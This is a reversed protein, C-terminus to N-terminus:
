GLDGFELCAFSSIDHNEFYHMNSALSLLSRNHHADNAFADINFIIRNDLIANEIFTLAFGLDLKYSNEYLQWNYIIDSGTVDIDLKNLFDYELCRIYPQDHNPSNPDKDMCLLITVKRVFPQGKSPANNIFYVHICDAEHYIHPEMGKLYINNAHVNLNIWLRTDDRRFAGDCRWRTAYDALKNVKYHTNYCNPIDEATEDITFTADCPLGEYSNATYCKFVPKSIEIHSIVYEALRKNDFAILEDFQPSKLLLGIVFDYFGINRRHKEYIDMINDNIFKGPVYLDMIKLIFVCEPVLDWSVAKQLLTNIDCSYKDFHLDIDVLQRMRYNTTEEGNVTVYNMIAHLFHKAAHAILALLDDMPSLIYVSQYLQFAHKVASNLVDQMLMNEDVHQVQHAYKAYIQTHVELAIEINLLNGKVQKRLIPFHHMHWVAAFDVGRAIAEEDSDFELQDFTYGASKCILVFDHLDSEHILIDIDWFPRLMPDPYIDDALLVGRTFVVKINKQEAMQALNNIERRCCTMLDNHYLNAAAQAARKSMSTAPLSSMHKEARSKEYSAYFSSYQELGTNANKMISSGKYRNTM